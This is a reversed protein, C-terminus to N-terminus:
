IIEKILKSTIKKLESKKVVAKNLEIEIKKKWIGIKKNNLKKLNAGLNLLEKSDLHPLQELVYWLTATDETLTFFLFNNEMLWKKFFTFFLPDHLEVENIVSRGKNENTILNFYFYFDSAGHLRWEEFWYELYYEGRESLIFQQFIDHDFIVEALFNQEQNFVIIKQLM